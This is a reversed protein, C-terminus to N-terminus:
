RGIINPKGAPEPADGVHRAALPTLLLATLFTLSNKM